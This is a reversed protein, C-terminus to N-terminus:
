RALAWAGQRAASYGSRWRVEMRLQSQEAKVTDLRKILRNTIREEELEATSLSRRLRAVEETLAANRQRELLLEHDIDSPPPALDDVASRNSVGRAAAATAPASEPGDTRGGGSVRSPAAVVLLAGLAPRGPTDDMLLDDYILSSPRGLEAPTGGFGSGVFAPAFHSVFRISSTDDVLTQRLRRVVATVSPRM